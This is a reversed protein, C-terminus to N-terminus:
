VEENEIILEIIRKLSYECLKFGCKNIVRKELAILEEALIFNGDCDNMVFDMYYSM